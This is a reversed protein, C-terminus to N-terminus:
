QSRKMVLFFPLLLVIAIVIWFNGFLYLLQERWQDYFRIEITRVKNWQILTTNDPFRTVNAGQSVSALLTNRVDLEAPLSVSVNYQKDYVAQLTNDKLPAMYSVTYNGREFTIASPRGWGKSWNFECPSCNGSLNVQDVNIAVDEGLFGVDAFEYRDVGTIEISVNYATGNPFVRYDASLASAAPVAILLM